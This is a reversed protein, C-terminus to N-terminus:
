YANLNTKRNGSGRQLKFTTRRLAKRIKEEIEINTNKNLWDLNKLYKSNQNFKTFGNTPIDNRNLTSWNYQEVQQCINARVPNRYVYKFAIKFYEYETILNPKYRSGYIKNIRGTANGIMLSSQRMFYMMGDDINANPTHLLMHFHNNMLVFSIPRFRYKKIVGYFCHKYINWIDGLPLNYWDKNNCRATVHYPYLNTRELLKRPM